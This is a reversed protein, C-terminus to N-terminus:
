EAAQNSLVIGKSFSGQETKKRQRVMDLEEFTMNHLPLVTHILELLDVLEEVAERETSAFKYGVAGDCIRQHLAQVYKQGKITEMSVVDSNLALSEM